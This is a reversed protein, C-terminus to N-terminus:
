ILVKNNALSEAGRVMFIVSRSLLYWAFVPGLVIAWALRSVLTKGSEGLVKVYAEELQEKSIKKRIYAMTFPWLMGLAKATAGSAAVDLPELKGNENRSGSGVELVEGEMPKEQATDPIIIGGATKEDSAVRKVLVRDHLPKFNM